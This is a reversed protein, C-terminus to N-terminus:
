RHTCLVCPRARRANFAPITGMTSGTVLNASSAGTLEARKQTAAVVQKPRKNVADIGSRSADINKVSTVLARSKAAPVSALANKSSSKSGSTRM